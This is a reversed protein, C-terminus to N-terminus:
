LFVRGVLPTVGISALTGLAVSLLRMQQRLMIKEKLDYRVSLFEFVGISLLVGVLTALLSILKSHPWSLAIPAVGIVLTSTLGCLLGRALKHKGIQQVRKGGIEGQISLFFSFIVAVQAVIAAVYPIYFVEWDRLINSVFILVTPIFLNYLFSKIQHATTQKAERPLLARVIFVVMVQALLLPLLWFFDGLLGPRM